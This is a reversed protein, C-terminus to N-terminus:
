PVLLLPPKIKDVCVLRAQLEDTTKLLTKARHHLPTWAQCRDEEVSTNDFDSHFKLDEVLVVTTPINSM